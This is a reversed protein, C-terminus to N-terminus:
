QHPTPHSAKMTQTRVERGRGRQHIILLCVSPCFASATEAEKELGAGRWAAGGLGQMHSPTDESSSVWPSAPGLSTDTPQAEAGEARGAYNLGWVMLLEGRSQSPCHCLVPCGANIPPECRRPGAVRVGTCVKQGLPHPIQFPFQTLPKFAWTLLWSLNIIAGALSCALM